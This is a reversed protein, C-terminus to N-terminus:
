SEPCLIMFAYGEIRLLPVSILPEEPLTSDPARILFFVLDENRPSLGFSVGPDDDGPTTIPM